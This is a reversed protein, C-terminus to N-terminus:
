APLHIVQIAGEIVKNGVFYLDFKFHKMRSHMVPNAVLLVAGLNDYYIKPIITPIRLESLLSQLWLLETIIAALSRFKAGTSSHPTIRFLNGTVIIDDVYILLLLTFHPTIRILLSTDSKAPKFGMKFLTNSLTQFWSRLAQKLGYIAKNLKCVKGKHKTNFGPPQAMYVSEKLAGHLFANNIDIQHIHWQRTLALTLVVRVITPKVVPSFTDTFDFGERQHFGKAVLRAKHKQFTGYANYKCKFVWRCGVAKCGVPLDVLSWTNNKLLAEYEDKMAQCWEPKSLAEKVTPEITHDYTSIDAATVYTKPKFIGVKARTTM